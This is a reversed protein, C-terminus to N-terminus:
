PKVGCTGGRPGGMLAVDCRTAVDHDESTFQWVHGHLVVVPFLTAFHTPNVLRVRVFTHPNGEIVVRLIAPQVALRTPLEDVRWVVLQKPAPVRRVFIRCVVALVVWLQALFARRLAMAAPRAVEEGALELVADICGAFAFGLLM